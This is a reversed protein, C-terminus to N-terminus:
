RAPRQFENWPYYRYTTRVVAGLSVMILTWSRIGTSKVSSSSVGHSLSAPMAVAFTVAKCGLRVLM